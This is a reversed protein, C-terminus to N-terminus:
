PILYSKRHIPWQSENKRLGEHPENVESPIYIKYIIVYMDNLALM